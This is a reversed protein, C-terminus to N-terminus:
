NNIANITKSSFGLSLLWITLEEMNIKETTQKELITTNLPSMLFTYAERQRETLIISDLKNIVTKPGVGKTKPSFDCGIVVALKSLDEDNIPLDGRHLKLYKGKRPVLINGGRIIVDMDSSLVYNYIQKKTLEACYFEAETQVTIYKIGMLKLLKKIDNIEEKTIKIKRKQVTEKKLPNFAGDFIWMQTAGINKLMLIQSLTIKIHSTIKGNYTLDETAYRNRYIINFADVAIKMGRFYNIDCESCYEKIKKGKLEVDLFGNIGM